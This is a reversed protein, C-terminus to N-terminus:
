SVSDTFLLVPSVCVGVSIEAHGFAGGKALLDLLVGLQVASQHEEIRVVHENEAQEDGDAEGDEEDEDVVAKGARHDPDGEDAGDDHQEGERHDEEEVFRM